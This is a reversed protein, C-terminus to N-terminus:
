KKELARSVAKEIENYFLAKAILKGDPGILFAAPYRIPVGLLDPDIGYAIAASEAHPGIIAQPWPQGKDALFQRAEPKDEAALLSIIAFERREKFAEHVGNIRAIQLRSQDHWLDGFDLLLTRGRFDDPVRLTKGDTTTVRFSPAPEGVKLDVRPELKIMGLDFPQDSRGNPIEPMVFERLNTTFPGSQRGMGPTEIRIVLRYPGPPVDEMRFSGNAHLPTALAVRANSYSIGAASRRWDETWQSWYGGNLSTKGKFLAAPFPTFTRNRELGAQGVAEFRVKETWGDPLVVRGVLPRGHGGLIVEAAGGPEVVIPEGLSFAGRDKSKLSVRPAGIPIVRDFVFHGEADTRANHQIFVARMGTSEDQQMGRLEVDRSAAPKAGIRYQGEVRAYPVATLVPSNELDKRAAIAYHSDGLVVIVAWDSSQPAPFTGVASTTTECSARPEANFRLDTININSRAESHYARANAIPVGDKTKVTFVQGNPKEPDALKLTIDYDLVTGEERQFARSVFPEYGDALIRFKYFATEADSPISVELYGNHLAIPGLRPVPTWDKVEGSKPDVRGFEVEGKTVGKKTTPDRAFGSIRVAPRLTFITEKESPTVVLNHLGIYGERSVAFTLPDGPAEDWQVRGEEDSYLFVNLCRYRNWTDVNM